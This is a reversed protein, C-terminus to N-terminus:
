DIIKNKTKSRRKEYESTNIRKKLYFILCFFNCIFSIALEFFINKKNKFVKEIKFVVYWRVKTQQSFFRVM